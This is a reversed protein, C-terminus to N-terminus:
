YYEKISTSNTSVVTVEYRFTSTNYKINCSSISTPPTAAAGESLLQTANCQTIGRLASQQTPTKATSDASAIYTIVSRAFSKTATNIAKARANLLNPILVSALVGIIAIVILLEILTFGASQRNKV